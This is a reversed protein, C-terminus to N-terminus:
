KKDWNRAEKAARLREQFWDYEDKNTRQSMPTRTYYHGANRPDDPLIAQWKKIAMDARWADDFDKMRSIKKLKEVVKREMDGGNPLQPNYLKREVEKRIFDEDTDGFLKYQWFSNAEVSSQDLEREFAVRIRRMLEKNIEHKM